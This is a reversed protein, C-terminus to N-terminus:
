GAAATIRHWAAAVRAATHLDDTNAIVEGMYHDAGLKLRRSWKGCSCTALLEPTGGEITADQVRTVHTPPDTLTM